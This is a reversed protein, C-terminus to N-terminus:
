AVKKTLCKKVIEKMKDTDIELFSSYKRIKMSVKPYIIDDSINKDWDELYRVLRNLIVMTELTLENQMFMTLAVPYNGEKSLFLENINEQIDLLKKFDNEFVYSLSEMNKKWNTYIEEAEEQLLTKTWAEGNSVFNAVLFPIVEDDKLKRALKHFLFKDRRKQFADVSIKSMGGATKFFDYNKVTFHLKVALYTACLDHGNM